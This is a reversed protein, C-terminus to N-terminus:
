YSVKFRGESDIRHGRQEPIKILESNEISCLLIYSFVEGYTYPKGKLPKYSINPRM